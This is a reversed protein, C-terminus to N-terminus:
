MHVSKLLRKAIYFLLAKYGLQGMAKASLELKQLMLCSLTNSSGRSPISIWRLSSGLLLNAPVWKYVSFPVILTFHRRWSCWATGWSLSSGPGSSRSDLASVM